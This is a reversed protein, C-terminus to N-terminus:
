TSAQLTESRVDDARSGSEMDGRVNYQEWAGAEGLLETEEATLELNGQDSQVLQERVYTSFQSWLEFLKETARQGRFVCQTCEVLLPAVHAGGLRLVLRLLVMLLDAETRTRFFSRFLGANGTRLTQMMWDDMPLGITTRLIHAPVLTWLHGLYLAQQVNGMAMEAVTRRQAMGLAPIEERLLQRLQEETWMPVTLRTARHYFKTSVRDVHLVSAMWRIGTCELYWLITEQSGTSFRDLGDLCLLFTPRRDTRYLQQFYERCKKPQDIEWSDVWHVQKALTKRLMRLIYTKGTGPKGELMLGRPTLDNELWQRVTNRVSEHGNRISHFFAEQAETSIDM